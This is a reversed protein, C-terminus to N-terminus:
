KLTKLYKDINTYLDKLSGKNELLYYKVKHKKAYAIKESTSLQTAIKQKASEFDIQDRNM